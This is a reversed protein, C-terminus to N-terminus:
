KGRLSFTYAIGDIGLIEAQVFDTQKSLIPEIANIVKRYHENGLEAALYLADCLEFRGGIDDLPVFESGRDSFCHLSFDTAGETVTVTVAMSLEALSNFTMDGDTYTGDPQETFRYGDETIVTKM